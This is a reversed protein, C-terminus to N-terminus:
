STHTEAEDVPSVEIGDPAYPEYALPQASPDQRLDEAIAIAEDESEAEVRFKFMESFWLTVDYVRKAAPTKSTSAPM